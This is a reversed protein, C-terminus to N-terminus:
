RSDDQSAIDSHPPLLDTFIIAGRRYLKAFNEPTFVELGYGLQVPLAPVGGHAGPSPNAILVNGDDTKGLLAVMHDAVFGSRIVVLAPRDRRAVSAVEDASLDKLEVRMEYKSLYDRLGYAARALSSGRSPKVMAVECMREESAPIGMLRLANACSSPVCTDHRNQLIIGAASTKEPEGVQVTPLIMWIGGFLFYVVGLVVMLPAARKLNPSDPGTQLMGVLMMWPFLAVLGDIWISIELPLLQHLLVPRFRLAAACGIAIVATILLPYRAAAPSKGLRLGLLYMAAALVALSVFWAISIMM